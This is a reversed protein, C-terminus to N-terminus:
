RKAAADSEDKVAKVSLRDFLDWQYSFKGNGAYEIISVGPAEFWSGDPRKGPGRNQWKTVIRDGDIVAWEHPFTWGRYPEMDRTLIDRRIEDRGRAEVMGNAALGAYVYVADDTYFDALREWNGDQEALRNAEVFRELTAQIEERPHSMRQGEGQAPVPRRRACCRVFSRRMCREGAIRAAIALDDTAIGNRRRTRVHGQARSDRPM